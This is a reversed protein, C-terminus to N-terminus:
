VVILINNAKYISDIRYFVNLMIEIKQHVWDNFNIELLKIGNRMYLISFFMIMVMFRFSLGPVTINWLFVVIILEVTHFFYSFAMYSIYQLKYSCLTYGLM